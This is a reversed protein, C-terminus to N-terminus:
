MKEPVDIGLLSMSKEICSAVKLSTIIRLARKDKDEEKLIPLDHYFKNFEKALEFAYNAIIAPSYNNSANIVTENYDYILKLL